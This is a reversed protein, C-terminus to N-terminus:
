KLIRNLIFDRMVYKEVKIGEKMSFHFHFTVDNNKFKSSISLNTDLLIEMKWMEMEGEIEDNMEIVFKEDKEKLLLINSFEMLNSNEKLEKYIEMPATIKMKFPAMSYWMNRKGKYKLVCAYENDKYIFKM